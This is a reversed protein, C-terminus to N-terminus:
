GSPPAVILNVAGSLSGPSGGKTYTAEIQLTYTGADSETTDIRFRVLDTEHDELTADHVLSTSSGDAPYVVTLGATDTVTVAFNELTPAFGTYQVDVWTSTLAEATGLDTTVQEVDAGTFTVIPVLIEVRKQQPKGNSEYSVLLQMNLHTRADYPVSLKIATFDLENESLQDDAWLSTYTGTNTPYSFTVSEDIREVTVRFNEADGDRSLWNVAVWATDGATVAATQRTQVDIKAPKAQAAAPAAAAIIMLLSLALAFRLKM